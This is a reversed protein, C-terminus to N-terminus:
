VVPVPLTLGETEGFGLMLNACQLAQGSTGKVLNDIACAVILTGTRKDVALGVHARNTGHVERTTPMRGAPHVSIFPDSAYRAGYLDVARDLTFSAPEAIELFLTVLMGRTMPVLHPAFTVCVPAGVVDSFTQEIEPIHRHGAVKYPAVSENVVCFQMASSVTRGAGSVGSKADIVIREFRVVGAELAPLAALVAATPYCGPCAVLRANALEARYLEPLGYVAQGLLEPATHPTAYWAEYVSPDKLRFDASADVVRTGRELLPGALKLAATHPVALFAIEARAAIQDVDPESFVLDTLGGLAPYVEDLRTGADSTSTAAVLRMGPHGLVLRVAEIGAYGAAGVIAVDVM